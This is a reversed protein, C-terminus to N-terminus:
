DKFFMRFPQLLLRGVPFVADVFFLGVSVLAQMM